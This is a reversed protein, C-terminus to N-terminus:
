EELTKKIEKQIHDIATHDVFLSGEDLYAVEYVYEFRCDMIGKKDAFAKAEKISDFEELVDDRRKLQIRGTM